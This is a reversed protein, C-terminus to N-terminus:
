KVVGADGEAAAKRPVKGISDGADNEAYVLRFDAGPHMARLRDIV